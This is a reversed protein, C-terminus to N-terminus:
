RAANFLTFRAALRYRDPASRAESPLRILKGELAKLGHELMPGDRMALLRDSVHIPFDRDIGILGADYAAHHIKSMCIGNTVEPQGLQEDADPMIHAADILRPERVGSLACRRDYADLVRARFIAQHLRQQVSRLAYRREAAPAPNYDFADIGGFSLACSLKELNWEVVFAPFLPEYVGPAVGYFYILPLQRTMADRLWRNRTNSPDARTFAYWFLGTATDLEPASQDHYWIRGKPKPVVTKLSLIGTMGTPRFIGEAATAFLFTRGRALFGQKLVTWPIASGHQYALARLRSFAALRIDTDPDDM